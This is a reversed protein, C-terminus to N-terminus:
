MGVYLPTALDDLTKSSFDIRSTPYTAIGQLDLKMQHPQKTPLLYVYAYMCLCVIKQRVCWSSFTYGPLVAGM